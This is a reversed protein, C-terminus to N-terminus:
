GGWHVVVDPPCLIPSPHHTKVCLYLAGDDFVLRPQGLIPDERGHARACGAAM